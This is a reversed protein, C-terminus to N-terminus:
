RSSKKSMEPLTSENYKTKIEWANSAAHIYLQVTIEKLIIILPQDTPWSKQILRLAYPKLYTHFFPSFYLQLSLPGLQTAATM